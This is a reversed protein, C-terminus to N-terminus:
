FSFFAMFHIKRRSDGYLFDAALGMESRWVQLIFKHQKFGSLKCYNTVAAVSFEYLQWSGVCSRGQLLCWM